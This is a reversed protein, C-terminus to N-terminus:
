PRPGVLWRAIREYAAWPLAARLALKVWADTGVPRRFPYRGRAAATIVEAVERPDRLHHAIYDVYAELAFKSPLTGASM